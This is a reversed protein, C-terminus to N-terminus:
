QSLRNGLLTGFSNGVPRSDKGAGLYFECRFRLLQGNPNHYIQIIDGTHLNGFLARGKDDKQRLHKGNISIGHTACTWIGVKLDELSTWDKGEQSMKDVSDSSHPASSYWFVIFATKPVRTDRSHEYVITNNGLRGWSTKSQDINLVLNPAFSDPTAVLKGLRKPPPRIDLEAPVSPVDAAPSQGEAHSSITSHGSTDSAGATEPYASAGTAADRSTSVFDFGSVRSAYELNHTNPNRPDYYYSATLPLNIQRDM